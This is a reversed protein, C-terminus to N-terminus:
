VAVPIGSLTLSKHNFSHVCDNGISREEATGRLLRASRTREGGIGRANLFNNLRRIDARENVNIHVVVFGNQLNAVAVGAINEFLKRGFLRHSDTAPDRLALCRLRLGINWIGGRRLALLGFRRFNIRGRRLLIRLRLDSGACQRAGSLGCGGDARRGSATVDDYRRLNIFYVACLVSEADKKITATGDNRSPGM